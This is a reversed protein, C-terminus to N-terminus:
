ISCVDGVCGDGATGLLPLTGLPKLEIASPASDAEPATDEAPKAENATM